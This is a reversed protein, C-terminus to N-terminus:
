FKYTDEKYCEIALITLKKNNEMEFIIRIKGKRIRYFNKLGKLKKFDFGSFERKLIKEILRGIEAREKFSFKKLQKDLNKM